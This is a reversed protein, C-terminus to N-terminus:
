GRKLAPSSGAPPPEPLDWPSGPAPLRQRHGKESNRRQATSTQVRPFGRAPDLRQPDRPHRATSSIPEPSRLRRSDRSFDPANQSQGRDHATGHGAAGEPFHRPATPGGSHSAGWLYRNNDAPFRLAAPPTLPAPGPDRRPSCLDGVDVSVRWLGRASCCLARPLDPDAFPAPLSCPCGGPGAPSLPRQQARPIRHISCTPSQLGAQAKWAADGTPPPNPLVPTGLGPDIRALCLCSCAPPM